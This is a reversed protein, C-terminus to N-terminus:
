FLKFTPKVNLSAFDIEVSAKSAKKRRGNLFMRLCEEDCFQYDKTNGLGDELIAELAEPGEDEKDAPKNAKKGKSPLRIATKCNDCHIAHKAETEM